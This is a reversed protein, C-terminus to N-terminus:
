TWKDGKKKKLQNRQHKEAKRWSLLMCVVTCIIASSKEAGEKLVLPIAEHKDEIYFSPV